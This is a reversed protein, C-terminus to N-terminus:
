TRSREFADCVKVSDPFTALTECLANRLAEAKFQPFTDDYSSHVEVAIRKYSQCVFAITNGDGHMRQKSQMSDINRDPKWQERPIGFKVEFLNLLYKRYRVLDTQCHRDVYM